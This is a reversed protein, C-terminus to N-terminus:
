PFQINCRSLNQNVSIFTKPRQFKTMKPHQINLFGEPLEKICVDVVCNLVLCVLLCCFLCVIFLVCVCVLIVLLCLLVCVCLSLSLIVFFYVRVVCAVCVFIVFLYQFICCFVSFLYVFPSYAFMCALVYLAISSVFENKQSHRHWLNKKKQPQLRPYDTM